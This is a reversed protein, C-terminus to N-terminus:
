VNTLEKKFYSLLYTNVVLDYLLRAKTSFLECVLNLHPITLFLVKQPPTSLTSVIQLILDHGPLSPVM